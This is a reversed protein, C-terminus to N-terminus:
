DTNFFLPSEHREFDNNTGLPAIFAFATDDVQEGGPRVQHGAVVATIVGAVGDGDAPLGVFQMKNGGADDVGVSGAQNAGAHDDVRQGQDRLNFGQSGATHIGARAAQAKRVGGVQDSGGVPRQIGSLLPPTALPLDASGSAADARSVGVFGGPASQADLLHKVRFGEHLVHCLVQSDGVLGQLRDIASLRQLDLFCDKLQGATSLEQLRIDGLHAVFDTKTVLELGIAGPAKAPSPRPM